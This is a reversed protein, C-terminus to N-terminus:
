ASAGARPDERVVGPGARAGAEVVVRVVVEESARGSARAGVGM